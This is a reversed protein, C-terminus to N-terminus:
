CPEQCDAPDGCCADNGAAALFDDLRARQGDTVTQGTLKEAHKVIADAARRQADYRERDQLRQEQREAALQWDIGDAV